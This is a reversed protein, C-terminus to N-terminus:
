GNHAEPYEIIERGCEPCHKPHYMGVTQWEKRQENWADFEIRPPKGCGASYMMRYNKESDGITFSSGDNEDTLEDDFRANYCKSCPPQTTTEKDKYVIWVGAEDYGDTHLSTVNVDFYASLADLVKEKEVTKQGDTEFFLEQECYSVLVDPIAREVVSEFDCMLMFICKRLKNKTINRM